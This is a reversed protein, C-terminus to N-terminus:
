PREPRQHGSVREEGELHSDPVSKSLQFEPPVSTSEHVKLWLRLVGLGGCCYEVPLKVSNLELLSRLVNPV